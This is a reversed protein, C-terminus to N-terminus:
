SNSCLIVHGDVSAGIIPSHLQLVLQYGGPLEMFASPADMLGLEGTETFWDGMLQHNEEDLKLLFRAQTGAFTGELWARLVRTSSGPQITHLVMELLEGSPPAGEVGDEGQASESSSRIVGGVISVVWTSGSGGGFSTIGLSQSDPQYFALSGYEAQVALQLAAICDEISVLSSSDIWVSPNDWDIEQAFYFYRTVDNVSLYLRSGAASNGNMVYDMPDISLILDEPPLGPEGPSGPYTYGHVNATLGTVRSCLSYM